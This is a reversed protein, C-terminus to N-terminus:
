YRQQQVPYPSKKQEIWAKMLQEGEAPNTARFQNFENANAFRYQNQGPQAQGQPVRGFTQNQLPQSNQQKRENFSKFGQVAKQINARSGSEYLNLLSELEAKTQPNNAQYYEGWFNAALHQSNQFGNSVAAEERTETAVMEKYSETTMVGQAALFEKAEKLKEPDYQSDPQQIPQYGLGALPNAELSSLKSQLSQIVGTLQEITPGTQAPVAPPATNEQGQGQNYSNDDQYSETSSDFYSNDDISM